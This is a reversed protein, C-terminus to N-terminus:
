HFEVCLLLLDDVIQFLRNQEVGRGARALGADEGAAHGMDQFRFGGCASLDKAQGKGVPGAFFQFFADDGRGFFFALGDDDLRDVAEAVAQEFFLRLALAVATMIKQEVIVFVALLEDVGQGCRRRCRGFGQLGQLVVDFELLFLADQLFQVVERRGVLDQLGPEFCVAGREEGLVVRGQGVVMGDIERVEDGAGIAEKCVLVAAPAPTFAEAEDGDIFHLVRAFDFVGDDAAEERPPIEEEAAVVELGDVFPATGVRFFDQGAEALGIVWPFDGKRRVVPRRLKKQFGRFAAQFVKEAFELHVLDVRSGALCGSGCCVVGDDDMFRIGEHVFAAPDELFDLFQGLLFLQLRADKDAVVLVGLLEHRADAGVVGAQRFFCLQGDGGDVLEVEELALFTLVNRGVQAKEEVLVVIQAQAADEQAEHRADAAARNLGDFARRVTMQTEPEAVEDVRDGLCRAVRVTEEQRGKSFPPDDDEVHFTRARVRCLVFDDLNGSDAEILVAFDCLFEIGVDAGLTRHARRVVDM